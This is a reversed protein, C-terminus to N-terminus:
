FRRGWLKERVNKEEEARRLAERWQREMREVIDEEQEQQQREGDGAVAFTGAVPSECGRLGIFRGWRRRKVELSALHRKTAVDNCDCKGNSEIYSGSGSESGCWVKEWGIPAPYLWREEGADITQHYHRALSDLQDHTLLQYSLLTRPFDPHSKGTKVSVLPM